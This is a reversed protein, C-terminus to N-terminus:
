KGPNLLLLHLFRLRLKLKRVEPLTLARLGSLSKQVKVNKRRYETLIHFQRTMNALRTLYGPLGQCFPLTMPIRLWFLKWTPSLHSLTRDLQGKGEYYEALYQHAETNDPERGLIREWYIAAQQKFGLKEYTKATKYLVDFGVDENRSLITFHARAKEYNETEYLLVALYRRVGRNTPEQRALQELYPLAENKRELKTLGEVLGALATQDSSKKEYVRKFLDVAREFRDMELMVKGLTNVYGTNEPSSEILLELLDAANNWDRTYILVRALEWRAEELNSKLVLLAKYQRVAKDFDGSLASKRAEDWLAKWPPTEQSEVVIRNEPLLEHPTVTLLQARSVQSSLCFLWIALM